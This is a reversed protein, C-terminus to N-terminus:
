TRGQMLLPLFQSRLYTNVNSYRWGPRKSEQSHTQCKVITLQRAAGCWRDGIMLRLIDVSGEGREGGGGRGERGYM